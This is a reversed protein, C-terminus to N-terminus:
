RELGVRREVARLRGEARERLGVRREEAARVGRGQVHEELVVEVRGRGVGAVDGAELGRAGGDRALLEGSVAAGYPRVLAVGAREGALDARGDLLGNRGGLDGLGELGDVAADGRTDRGVGDPGQELHVADDL